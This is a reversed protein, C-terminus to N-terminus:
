LLLCDQPVHLMVKVDGFVDAFPLEAKLFTARGFSGQVFNCVMLVMDFASNGLLAEDQANEQIYLAGKVIDCELSNRFGDPGSFHVARSGLPDDDHNGVSVDVNSVFLCSFADLDLSTAEM